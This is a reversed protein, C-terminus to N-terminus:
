ESPSDGESENPPNDDNTVHIYNSHCSSGMWCTFLIDGVETPTFEYIFNKANSQLQIHGQNKDYTDTWTEYGPIKVTYACGTGVTVDTTDVYWKVPVGAKITIDNSNWLDAYATVLEVAEGANNGNTNDGTNGDTNDDDDHDHDHGTDSDHDGSGTNSGSGDVVHIYNHHCSSGMWCTFLIDGVTTPTFEYVFNKGVELTLHGENQNYTDTGWGLGPIKITKGCTMGSTPSSGAPVYVYWKVPVGVTATINNSTWLVAYDTVIERVNPNGSATNSGSGTGGVTSANADANAVTEGASDVAKAKSNNTVSTNATAVVTNTTVKDAITVRTVTGAGTLIAGDANVTAATVTAGTNVTLTAGKASEALTLTKVTGDAITVAADPSAIILTDVDGSLIAGGEAVTVSTVSSADEIVIRPTEGGTKAVTLKNIKSNGRIHISNAGGGLVVLTDAVVGDLYADGDGVGRGIILSGGVSVSKLTVGPKRIVLGAGYTKDALNKDTIESVANQTIQLVEARTFTKQPSFAGGGVGQVYGLAKLAYVYPRYL